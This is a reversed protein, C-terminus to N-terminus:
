LVIKPKVRANRWEVGLLTCRKRVANDSVGYMEGIKVMSTSSVLNVLEERTAEFKRNTSHRAIASCKKCFGTLNNKHIISGCKCARPSTSHKRKLRGSFTETQSHCTPCLWRLNSLRHDTRKGNIHDLQLSVPKGNYTDIVPCESCRYELLKLKLVKSRILKRSYTSNETFFEAIDNVHNTSRIFNRDLGESDIRTKLLEIYYSATRSIDLKHLIEGLSSSTNLLEVLKSIEMDKIYKAKNRM